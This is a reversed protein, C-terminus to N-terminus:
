NIEHIMGLLESMGSMTTRMYRDSIMHVDQLDKAFLDKYKQYNYRGLLYRARM